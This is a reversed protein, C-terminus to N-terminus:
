EAASQPAHNPRSSCKPLHCVICVSSNPSGSVPVPGPPEAAPYSCIPCYQPLLEPCGGKICPGGCPGSGVFFPGWAMPLDRGAAVSGGLDMLHGRIGSRGQEHIPRAAIGWRAVVRCNYGAGAVGRPRMVPVPPAMLNRTQAASLREPMEACAKLCETGAEEEADEDDIGQTSPM